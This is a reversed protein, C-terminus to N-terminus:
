REVQSLKKADGNKEAAKGSDNLKELSEVWMLECAGNGTDTRSLSSRWPPMDPGSVEVLLGKMRILDGARTQWMACRLSWDAPILHMNASHCIIEEKPIPPANQWEYYYFRNGQSIDLRDLV